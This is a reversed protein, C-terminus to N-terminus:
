LVAIAVERWAYTVLHILGQQRQASNVVGSGGQGFLQWRMQRTVQNEELRPYGQYLELARAKLKAQSAMVGWAFSFPLLINVVM